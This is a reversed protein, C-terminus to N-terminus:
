SNVFLFLFTDDNLREPHHTSLSRAELRVTHKELGILHICASRSLSERSLEGRAVSQSGHWVSEREGDTQRAFMNGKVHGCAM